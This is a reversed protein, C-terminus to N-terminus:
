FRVTFGPAGQQQRPAYLEDVPGAYPATTAASPDTSLPPPGGFEITLPPTLRPARSVPDTTPAGISSAQDSEGLHQITPASRLTFNVYADVGYYFLWQNWAIGTRTFAGTALNISGAGPTFVTGAARQWATMPGVVAPVRFAGAAADPIAVPTNKAAPLGARLMRGGSSTDALAAPGAYVTSAGKGLTQTSEITTAAEATTMHVLTGTEAGARGAAAAVTPAKTALAGGLTGIVGIAADVLNAATRSMGLWKQMGLSTYTDTQEGTVAQRVGAQTTDLGHAAVAAGLVLGVGTWGAAAM